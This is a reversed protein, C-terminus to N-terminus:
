VEFFYSFPRAPLVTQRNFLAKLAKSFSDRQALYGQAAMSHRFFSTKAQKFSRPSQLAGRTPHM